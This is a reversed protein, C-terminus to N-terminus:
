KELSLIGHCCMRRFIPKRKVKNRQKTRTISVMCIRLFNAFVFIDWFLFDGATDGDLSLRQSWASRWIRQLPMGVEVSSDGLQDEACQSRARLGKMRTFSKGRTVTTEWRGEGKGKEQNWSMVRGQIRRGRARTKKQRMRSEKKRWEKFLLTGSLQM